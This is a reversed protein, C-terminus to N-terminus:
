NAFRTERKKEKRGIADQLNKEPLKASVDGSKEIQRIVKQAARVDSEFDPKGKKKDIVKNLAGLAQERTEQPIGSYDIGGLVRFAWEGLEEHRSILEKVAREKLKPVSNILGTSLTFACEKDIGFERDALGSILADAMIERSEQPIGGLKGEQAMRVFALAAGRRAEPLQSKDKLVSSLPGVAKDGKFALEKIAAAYGEGGYEATGLKKILEEVEAM